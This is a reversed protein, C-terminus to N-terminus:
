ARPSRGVVAMLEAAVREALALPPTRGLEMTRKRGAITVTILRDDIIVFSGLAVQGDITVHFWEPGDRHMTKWLM